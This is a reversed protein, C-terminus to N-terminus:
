GKGPTKIRRVVAGFVRHLGKLRPYAADFCQPMTRFTFKGNSTKLYALMERRLRNWVPKNQEWDAENERIRCLQYAYHNVYLKEELEYARRYGHAEYFSLQQRMGEFIVLESEKWASRTIGEPNRFYFYLKQPLLATKGVAYLAQYTTFVDEFNKGQPYRLKAFCSKPYLKGWAYNFNWTHTIMLTEPDMVQAEGEAVEELAAPDFARVNDHGAIAVANHERAAAYLRELFQPHVWDDSDIFTLYESQSYTLAWAIGTNRAASLGGNERHIVQIRSDRCAYRDCIQPCGDDSGDDVLVLDFDRFTQNLISGICRHIYKEVRYVPVIVTIKM